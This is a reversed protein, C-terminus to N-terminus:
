QRALAPNIYANGVFAFLVAFYRFVDTLIFRPMKTSLFDYVVSGLLIEYRTQSTFLSVLMSFESFMLTFILLVGLTLARPVDQGTLWANGYLIAIPGVIFFIMLAILLIDVFRRRQLRLAFFSLRSEVRGEFGLKSATAKPEATNFLNWESTNRKTTKRAPRKMIGSEEDTFRTNFADWFERSLPSQMQSKEFSPYESGRTRPDHLAKKAENTSIDHSTRSSRATQERKKLSISIQSAEPPANRLWEVWTDSDPQLHNKTVEDTLKITISLETAPQSHRDTSQKTMQEPPGGGTREAKTKHLLPALFIGRQIKQFTLNCYVPTCRRPVEMALAGHEGRFFHGNSDTMPSPM